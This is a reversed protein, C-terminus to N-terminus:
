NINSKKLMPQGIWRVLSEVSSAGFYNLDFAPNLQQYGIRRIMFLILFFILFYKEKAIMKSPPRDPLLGIAM